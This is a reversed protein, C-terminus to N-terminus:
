LYYFHMLKGIFAVDPKVEELAKLYSEVVVCNKYINAHAGSLKTQLIEKAKSTIPDAIGVIEVGGIEELRKSHDWPGEAGGFNVAGAGIFLM